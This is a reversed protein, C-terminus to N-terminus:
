KKTPHDTEIHNGTTDTPLMEVDTNPGTEIRETSSADEHFRFTAPPWWSLLIPQFIVGNLWGFLVIMVYLVFYYQRFYPFTSSAIPLVGIFTTIAGFSVANFL